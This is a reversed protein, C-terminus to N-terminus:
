HILLRFQIDGQPVGNLPDHQLKRPVVIPTYRVRQAPFAHLDIVLPHQAHHPFFRQQTVQLAVKDHRGVRCM